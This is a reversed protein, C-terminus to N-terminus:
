RRNRPGTLVSNKKNWSYAAAETLVITCSLGSGCCCVFSQVCMGSGLSVMHLTIMLTEPNANHLTQIYPVISILGMHFSPHNCARELCGASVCSTKQLQVVAFLRFISQVLEILENANQASTLACSIVQLLLLLKERFIALFHRRRTAHLDRPYM